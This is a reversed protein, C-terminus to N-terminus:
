GPAHIWDTNWPPNLPFPLDLPPAQPNLVEPTPFTKTYMTLICKPKNFATCVKKFLLQHSQFNYNEM